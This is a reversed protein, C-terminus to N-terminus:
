GFLQAIVQDTSIVAGYGMALAANAAAPKNGVFPFKGDRIYDNQLDISILATKM